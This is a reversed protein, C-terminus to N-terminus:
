KGTIARGLERIEKQTFRGAIQLTGGTIASMIKPASVVEGDVVIALQEGVHEGTWKAFIAATDEPLEITLVWGSDTQETAVNEFRKFDGISPGLRYTSGDEGTLVDPAAPAPTQAPPDVALVPRMEVAVKVDVPGSGAQTTRPPPTPASETGCATLALLLGALIILKPM